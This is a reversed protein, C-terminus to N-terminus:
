HSRQSVSCGAARGRWFTSTAFPGPSFGVPGEGGALARGDGSILSQEPSRRGRELLFCPGGTDLPRSRQLCTQLRVPTRTVRPDRVRAARVPLAVLIRSSRVGARLRPSPLAQQAINGTARLSPSSQWTRRVHSRATRPAVRGAHWSGAAPCCFGAPLWRRACSRPWCCGDSVRARFEVGGRGHQEPSSRAPRAHVRGEQMEGVRAPDRAVIEGERDSSGDGHALSVHEDGQPARHGRIGVCRGGFSGREPGEDVCHLAHGPWRLGVFDAERRTVYCAFGNGFGGKVDDRSSALVGAARVTGDLLGGFGLAGGGGAGARPRERGAAVV